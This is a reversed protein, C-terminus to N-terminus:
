KGTNSTPGTTAPKNTNLKTNPCNKWLGIKNAKAVQAARLLQASYKGKEGNYFYPTAAGLEVMKLNININAANVYRLLRGYRDVDGSVPDSELTISSTGLLKKLIQLSEAGFCEAPSLEPADIQLFRVRQGTAITLTDGDYISKIKIEEASVFQSSSILILITLITSRMKM